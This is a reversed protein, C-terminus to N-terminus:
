ELRAHANGLLCIPSQMAMHVQVSEQKRQSPIPSVGSWVVCVAVSGFWVINEMNNGANNYYACLQAPLMAHWYQFPSRLMGVCQCVFHAFPMDLSSTCPQQAVDCALM